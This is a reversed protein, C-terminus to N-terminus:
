PTELEHVSALEQVQAHIDSKMDAATGAPPTYAKTFPGHDGVHFRLHKQQVMGGKGDPQPSHSVNISHVNLNPAM